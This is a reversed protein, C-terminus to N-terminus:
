RLRILRVGYQFSTAMALRAQVMEASPFIRRSGFRFPRKRRPIRRGCPFSAIVPRRAVLTGLALELLRIFAPIMPQPSMALRERQLKAHGRLRRRAPGEHRRAAEAPTVRLTEGPHSGCGRPERSLCTQRRCNGQESRAHTQSLARADQRGCIRPPEHRSACNGPDPAGADGRALSNQELENSHPDVFSIYGGPLLQRPTTLTGNFSYQVANSPAPDYFDPTIFDSVRVGNITYTSSDAECPDCAEVLYEFKGVGDVIRGEKIQIATATQLRNGNPDVLMEITEHSADVTWEDSGPTVVIKAYPQNHRTMHFGGEDPPLEKVILVPWVGQPISRPDPLYEVSADINWFKPLDRTVQINLAGAAAAMTRNDVTHTTDVLGVRIQLM